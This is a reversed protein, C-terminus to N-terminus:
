MLYLSLSQLMPGKKAIGNFIGYFPQMTLWLDRCVYPYKCLSYSQTPNNLRLIRNNKAHCLKNNSQIYLFQIHRRLMAIQWFM